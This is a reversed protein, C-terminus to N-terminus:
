TCGCLFCLNGSGKPPWGITKPGASKITNKQCAFPPRSQDDEKRAKRRPRGARFHWTSAQRLPHILETNAIILDPLGPPWLITKHPCPAAHSVPLGLSPHAATGNEMWRESGTRSFPESPHLHPKRAEGSSALKGKDCVPVSSQFSLQVQSMINM